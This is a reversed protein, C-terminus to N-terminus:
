PRRLTIGHKEYILKRNFERNEWFNASKHTTNAELHKFPLVSQQLGFGNKTARICFDLDQFAGTLLFDEDFKGVKDWIKRSITMLWGDFWSLGDEHFVQQGYLMDPNLNEVIRLFPAECLIDTDSLMLWDWDPHIEDVSDTIALNFSTMIALNDTRIIKARLKKASYPEPSGNDVIFFELGPENKRLSQIFPKVYEEAHGYGSSLMVIKM